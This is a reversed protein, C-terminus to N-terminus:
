GALVQKMLSEVREALYDAASQTEANPRADCSVVTAFRRRGFRRTMDAIVEVTRGIYGDADHWIQQERRELARIVKEKPPAPLTAAIAPGYGPSDYFLPPRFFRRTALVAAAIGADRTYLAEADRERTWEGVLALYATRESEARGSLPAPEFRLRGAPDIGHTTFPDRPPIFPDTRVVITVDHGRRALAHCTRVLDRGSSSDLPLALDAFCLIRM